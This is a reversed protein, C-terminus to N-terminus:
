IEQKIKIFADMRPTIKRSKWKPVYTICRIANSKHRMVVTWGHRTKVRIPKSGIKDYNNLLTSLEKVAYFRWRDTDCYRLKFRERFHKTLVVRVFSGRYTTYITNSKMYMTLFRNYCGFVCLLTDNDMNVELRAKFRRSYRLHKDKLTEQIEKLLKIKRANTYM